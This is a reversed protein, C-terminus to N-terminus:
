NDLIRFVISNYVVSGDITNNYMGVINEAQVVEAAQVAVEVVSAVRDGEIDVLM